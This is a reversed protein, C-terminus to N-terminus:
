SAMAESDFFFLSDMARTLAVLRLNQTEIQAWEPAKAHPECNDEDAWWVRPWEGGKAKHISCLTVIQSSDAAGDGFLHNLEACLEATSVPREADGHRELLNDVIAVLVDISDRLKATAESPEGDLTKDERDREESKELKLKMRRIAEDAETARTAEVAAILGAGFDRGLLKCPVRNRMLWYAITVLPANKRCIVADGAQFLDATIRVPGIAGEDGVEALAKREALAPNDYGNHYPAGNRFDVITGVPAGPRAEIAPSYQRALDLHSSPCRYCISLPLVDCDLEERCREMSDKDAGRWAYIAQHPDGVGMFLATFNQRAPDAIEPDGGCLKVVLRRQCADLDQLEDVIVVDRPSFKLDPVIVPLYPMDGFDIAAGSVELSKRLTRRAADVLVSPRSYEIGYDDMLDLWADDRNDDCVLGKVPIRTKMGVYADVPVLGIGRARDVLKGVLSAPVYPNIQGDEKLKAIVRKIKDFALEGDGQAVNMEGKKRYVRQMFGEWGRKGIAHMTLSAANGPLKAKADEAVRANFSVVEIKADPLLKCVERGTTSKGSGAEAQVILNRPRPADLGARRARLRRWQEQMHEFIAVNFRNPAFTSSM